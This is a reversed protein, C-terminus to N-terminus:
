RRRRYGGRQGSRIKKSEDDTKLKVGADLAALARSFTSMVEKILEGSATDQKRNETKTEQLLAKLETAFEQGKILEQIVREWNNQSGGIKASSM